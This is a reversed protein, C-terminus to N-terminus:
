VAERRNVKDWGQLMAIRAMRNTTLKYQLNVVRGLQAPYNEYPKSGCIREIYSYAIRIAVYIAITSNHDTHRCKNCRVDIIQM